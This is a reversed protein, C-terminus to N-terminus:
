FIQLHLSVGKNEESKKNKHDKNVTFKRTLNDVRCCTFGLQLFPAARYAFYVHCFDLSVILFQSHYYTSSLEPM